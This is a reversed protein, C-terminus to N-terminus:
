LYDQARFERAAQVAEARVDDRARPAEATKVSYGAYGEEITPLQGNAAARLYEAQVEARTFQSVVPTPKGQEAESVDAFATGTAAVLALAVISLKNM